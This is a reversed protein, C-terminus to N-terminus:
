EAAVTAMSTLRTGIQEGNAKALEWRRRLSESLRARGEPSLSGKRPKTPTLGGIAEMALLANDLAKLRSELTRREDILDAIANQLNNMDM